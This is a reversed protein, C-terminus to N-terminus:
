ESQWARLLVLVKEANNRSYAFAGEDSFLEGYEAPRNTTAWQHFESVAAGMAQASEPALTASVSEIRGDEGFVFKNETYTISAIGATELWENSEVARCRVEHGTADCSEFELHTNLALDYELIQRIAPLGEILGLPGFDLTSDEAFLEIASELDGSNKHAQFEAVSKEYDLPPSCALLLGALLISAHRKIM